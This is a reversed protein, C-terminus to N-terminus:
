ISWRHRVLNVVGSKELVFSSKRTNFHILDIFLSVKKRRMSERKLEIHHSPHLLRDLIADAITKEGILRHWGTVPLQSTIILSGKYQRDDIIELLALRNQNDLPQLGFDDIILLHQREIKALKKLYSGDAKAMKLKLFLKNPNLYM